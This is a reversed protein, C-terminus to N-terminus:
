PCVSAGLKAPSSALSNTFIKTTIFEWVLARIVKGIGLVV